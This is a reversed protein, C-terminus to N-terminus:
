ERGGGEGEADAIQRRVSEASARFAAVEEANLNPYFVREIGRRGIVAPLSLCVERVGLFGDILTSVPMTHLTNLVIAEVIASAAMAIGFNTYGKQGHVAHGAQAAAHILERRHPNDDISEGGATACSMAAFQTPGHEGLIYARLDGCHVGVEMSLMRRFRASDILTGTGLVRAAPWGTIKMAHWTLVDVPNSVMMLVADPSGEALPPLLERMLRVNGPGLVARHTLVVPSPVSACMIIIDSGAAAEVGGTRIQAPVPVFSQAHELDLVDGQVMRQNRGLLVMERVVSKCVLAFALTSGVKGMGVITVKMGPLM